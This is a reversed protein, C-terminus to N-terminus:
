EPLSAVVSHGNTVYRHGESLGGEDDQRCEQLRVFRRCVQM